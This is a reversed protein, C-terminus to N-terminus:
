PLANVAPKQDDHTEGASAHGGVGRQVVDDLRLQGTRAVQLPISGDVQGHRRM